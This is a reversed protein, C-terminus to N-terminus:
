ALVLEEEALEALWKDIWMVSRKHHEFLHEIIIGLPYAPGTNRFETSFDSSNSRCGRIPCMTLPGYKLTKTLLKMSYGFSGGSTAKDMGYRGIMVLGIKCASCKGTNPNTIIWNGRTAKALKQGLLNWKLLQSAAKKVSLGM